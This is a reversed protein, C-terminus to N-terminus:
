RSSYNYVNNQFNRIYKSHNKEKLITIIRKYSIDDRSLHIIKNECKQHSAIGVNYKKIVSYWSKSNKIWENKDAFNFVLVGDKQINNTLLKLWESNDQISRYPINNLENFVDDIILDYKAGKYNKLWKQADANILKCQETNLKFYKKAIALHVKDLDIADVKAEPYFYHILNIVSGGGVGLVLVRQLDAKLCLTTILFLEWLQGSVPRKHNWQSHLVNNRYLRIANGARTVKYSAGSDHQSWVISM